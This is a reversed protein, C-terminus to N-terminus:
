ELLSGVLQHKMFSAYKSDDNAVLEQHTGKEIVVGKDLVLICTSRVVTSLRHAIIFTTKGEMLDDLALQVIHENESDLASTAEDLLLVKPQRIVARAIAIRQKQGGSIRAAREGPITEYGKALETIFTHANAQKAADHIAGLPM